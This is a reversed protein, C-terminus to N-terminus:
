NRHSYSQPGLLRAPRWGPVARVGVPQGGGEEGAGGGVDRGELGGHGGLMVWVLSIM